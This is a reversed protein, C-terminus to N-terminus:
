AGALKKKCRIALSQAAGMVGRPMFVITLFLLVGYIMMRYEPIVQLYEPILTLILTGLIPGVLTGVGGVVLFILAEFSVHISSIAPTIFAVLWSYFSGAVGAFFSGITFATLKYRRPDVGVSEALAENRRIALFARGTRSDVLRRTFFLLFYITALILYYQPAMSHFSIKGWFLLPIPDPPPINSIGNTGGTLSIWNELLITVIMGFGLTCIAFYPGKSRLAPIGILFGIVGSFLAAAPLALWYSWGAEQVLLVSTYAGIGFFSGHCLSVQGAYGLVFNLSLALITWIGSLAIMYFYYRETVIWPIGLSIVAGGTWLGWEVIKM